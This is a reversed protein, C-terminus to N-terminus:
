ISLASIPVIFFMLEHRNFCYLKERHQFIVWARIEACGTRQRAKLDLEEVNALNGIPEM